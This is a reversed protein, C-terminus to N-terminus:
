SEESLGEFNNNYKYWTATFKKVSCCNLLLANMFEAAYFINLLDNWRKTSLNKVERKQSVNATLYSKSYLIM